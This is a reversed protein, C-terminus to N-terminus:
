DGRRQQIHPVIRALGFLKSSIKLGSHEAADKNIEFRIKNQEKYFNIIVGREAYGNTDGVTLINLGQAAALVSDLRENEPSAIFLMRCKRIEHVSKIRRVSLVKGAATKGEIDDIDRGFNDEGLICLNLTGTDAPWEIFKAFNYLFAAKVQYETPGAEQANACLTALLMCCLFGLFQKKVNNIM